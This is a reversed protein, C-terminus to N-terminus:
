HTKQQDNWFNKQMKNTIGTEKELLMDWCEISVIVMMKQFYIQNLYKFMKIHQHFFCGIFQSKYRHFDVSSPTYDRLYVYKGKNKITFSLM